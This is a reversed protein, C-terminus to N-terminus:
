GASTKSVCRPVGTRRGSSLAGSRWLLVMSPPRPTNKRMMLLSLTRRKPEKRFGRHARRLFEAKKQRVRKKRVRKIIIRKGDPKGSPYPDPKGSPYGEPKGSPHPRVHDVYEATGFRNRQPVHSSGRGRRGRDLMPLNGLVGNGATQVLRRRDPRLPLTGM